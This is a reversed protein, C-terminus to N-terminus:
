MFIRPNILWNIPISVKLSVYSRRLWMKDFVKGAIDDESIRGAGECFM